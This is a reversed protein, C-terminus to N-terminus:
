KLMMAKRTASWGTSSQARILYLGSPYDKANWQTTYEGASLQGHHLTEVKQGLLNYVAISVISKEPASLKVSVTPNFPNPYNQLLRITTPKPAQYENTTAM